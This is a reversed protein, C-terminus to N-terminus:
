DCKDSLVTQILSVPASTEVERENANENKTGLKLLTVESEVTICIASQNTRSM